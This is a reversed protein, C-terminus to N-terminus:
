IFIIESYVCYIYCPEKLIVLMEFKTKSLPFTPYFDLSNYSNLFCMSLLFIVRKYEKNSGRAYRKCFYFFNIKNRKM